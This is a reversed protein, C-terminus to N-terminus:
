KRVLRWCRHIRRDRFDPPITDDTIEEVAAAGIASAQMRFKRFNTSFYVVGGSSCLHLIRGLLWAHDRQVDFDRRMAKSKSVTPPDVVVLDFEAGSGPRAQELFRMADSRVFRHEPSAFGNLEMNRRAWELYTNSLDVTTTERAGGAAAYVSFSGTYGFLNLVRRGRAQDRVVCRTPRHDLFLGTDIREALNVLFRLGHEGVEVLEHRVELTGYQAGGPQRHRVKVFSSEESVDLARALARALQEVRRRGDDGPPLYRGAYAAVHLRGEYWDVALPIEPIDRDYLRFCTIGERVLWSRLRRRNKRVRNVLMEARRELKDIGSEM